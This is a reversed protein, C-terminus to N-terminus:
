SLTRALAWCCQSLHPVVATWLLVYRDEPLCLDQKLVTRLDGGLCFELVMWINKRTLYRHATPTRTCSHAVALTKCLCTQLCALQLLWPLSSAM